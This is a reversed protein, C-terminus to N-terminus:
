IIMPKASISTESSDGTLPFHPRIPQNLFWTVPHISSLVKRKHTPVGYYTFSIAEKLRWVIFLLMPLPRGVEIKIPVPKIREYQSRIEKFINILSPPFPVGDQVSFCLGHAQGPEHYPDQGLIVVKVKDFPCHEFANFMYPGPPYVTGQRYEQKVFDTLQKFYDKEFEDALRKKWSEEIKVDM